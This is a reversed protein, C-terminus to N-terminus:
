SDSVQSATLKKYPLVEGRTLNKLTAEFMALQEGAVISIENCYRGLAKDFGQPVHPLRWTKVVSFTYAIAGIRVDGFATVARTCSGLLM